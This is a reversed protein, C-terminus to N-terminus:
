EQSFLTVNNKIINYLDLAHSKNIFDQLLLHLAPRNTDIGCAAALKITKKEDANAVTDSFVKFINDYHTTLVDKSLKQLDCLEVLRLSFPSFASYLREANISSQLNWYKFSYDTIDLGCVFRARTNVKIQDNGTYVQKFVQHNLTAYRISEGTRQLEVTLRTAKNPMDNIRQSFGDCYAQFQFFPLLSLNKDNLDIEVYTGTYTTEAASIKTAQLQVCPIIGTQPATFCEGNDLANILEDAQAPVLAKLLAPSRTIGIIKNSFTKTYSRAVFLMNDLLFLIAYLRTASAKYERYIARDTGFCNANIMEIWKDPIDLDSCLLTANIWDIPPYHLMSAIVDYGLTGKKGTQGKFAFGALCNDQIVPQFYHVWCNWAFSKYIKAIDTDDESSPVTLQLYSKPNVFYGLNYYQQSTLKVFWTMEQRIDDDVLLLPDRLLAQVEKTLM